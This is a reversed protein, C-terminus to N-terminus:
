EKLQWFKAGLESRSDSHTKELLATVHVEVTRVSCALAAAITKNAEGQVILALVEAQRPTLSCRTAMSQVRRRLDPPAPPLVVLWHLPAGRARIPTVHEGAERERVLSSLRARADADAALYARGAANAHVPRGDVRTVFAPAAIADLVVQTAAAGFAAEGALRELQLIRRLDPVLAQLARVEVDDFERDRWGGVWGLLAEGRCVLVRLQAQAEIGHRPYFERFCATDAGGCEDLRLARNRQRPAPRVPDYGGFLRPASALYTDFTEVVDLARHSSATDIRARDDVIHLSYCIARDLQLLGAVAALPEDARGADELAHNRLVARTARLMSEFTPAIM